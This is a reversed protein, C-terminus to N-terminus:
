SKVKKATTDMFTNYVKALKHIGESGGAVVGGTLFVDIMQFFVNMGETKGNIIPEILSQLARIGVASVMLGIILATWLAVRQTAMRYEERTIKKAKLDNQKQTLSQSATPLASIEEEINKIDVDLEAAKPGRWTTIFVELSRELLLAIIFLSTLLSLFQSQEFQKIKFFSSNNNLLVYLLIGVILIIPIWQNKKDMTLGWCNSLM